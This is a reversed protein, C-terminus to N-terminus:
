NALMSIILAFPDLDYIDVYGDGNIDAELQYEGTMVLQTFPTADGIDVTGDQDADGLLVAPDLPGVIRAKVVGVGNQSVYVHRDTSVDIGSPSIATNRYEESSVDKFTVDTRPNEMVFLSADVSNVSDQQQTLWLNGEPGFVIPGPRRIQTNGSHSSIDTIGATGPEGFIRTDAQTLRFVRFGRPIPSERHGQVSVYLTTPDNDDATIYGTNFFDNNNFRMVPWINTWTRGGDNSRCLGATLDLLYVVGSNESDPWVFNSRDTGGITVGTSKRWVRNKYRYVGEGEVAALITKTAPANGNHYGYAVARVRGHNGPTVDELGTKTWLIDRGLATAAKLFVEGGRNADRDGTGLVLERARSNFLVDYGRSEAFEPRDRIIDDDEFRSNTELM